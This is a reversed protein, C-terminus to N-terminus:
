FAEYFSIEQRVNSERGRTRGPITAICVFGSEGSKSDLIIALKEL